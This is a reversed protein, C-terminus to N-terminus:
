IDELHGVSSPSNYSHPPYLTSLPRTVTILLGSFSPFSPTLHPHYVNIILPFQGPSSSLCTNRTAPTVSVFACIYPVTSTWPLNRWRIWASVLNQVKLKESAWDDNQIGDRSWPLTVPLSWDDGNLHQVHRSGAQRQSRPPAATGRQLESGIAWPERDGHAPRGHHYAPGNQMERLTQALLLHEKWKSFYSYQTAKQPSGTVTGQAAGSRGM